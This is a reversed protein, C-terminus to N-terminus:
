LARGSLGIAGCYLGYEKKFKTSVRRVVQYALRDDIPMQEKSTKNLGYIFLFFLFVVVFSKLLINM